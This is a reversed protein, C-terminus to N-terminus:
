KIIRKKRFMIPFETIKGGKKPTQFCLTFPSNPGKDLCWVMFAHLPLPPLAGDM